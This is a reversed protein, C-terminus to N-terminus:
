EFWFPVAISLQWEAAVCVALSREERDVLTTLLFMKITVKRVAQLWFTKKM